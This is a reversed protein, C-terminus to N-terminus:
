NRTRCGRLHSVLNNWGGGGFTAKSPGMNEFGLGTYFGVLHDHALLALRDACKSDKIRQIYAKMLVTGLGIGQHEKAVALSHICVTGGQEQHGIPEEEDKAPLSSRNTKWDPPLGMSADTVSPAPSRTAVVHAILRRKV